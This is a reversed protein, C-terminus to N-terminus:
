AAAVQPSIAAYVQEATIKSLDGFRRSAGLVEVGLLNGSEDIDHMEGPQVKLTRAVKGAQIRLYLADVDTDIELKLSDKGIHSM